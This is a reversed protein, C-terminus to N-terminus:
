EGPAGQPPGKKAEIGEIYKLESLALKNGPEIELSKRFSAKAADLQGLEIQAFGMGRLVLARQPKDDDTEGSLKLANEYSALAERSKGTQNLVHGKECWPSADDPACEIARDLLKLATDWEKRAAAIYGQLVIAHAFSYNLRVTPKADAKGKVDRLQNEFKRCTESKRFCVYNSSKDARIKEFWSVVANLKAEAEPLKGERLLAVAEEVTKAHEAGLGGSSIVVKSTTEVTSSRQEIPKEEALLAAPLLLCTIILLVIAKAPKM